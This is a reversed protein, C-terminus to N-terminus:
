INSAISFVDVLDPYKIQFENLLDTTTDYDHYEGDRWGPLISSKYIDIKSELSENIEVIDKEICGTSSLTLLFLCILLLTIWNLKKSM